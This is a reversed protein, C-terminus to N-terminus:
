TTSFPKRSRVLGKESLANRDATSASIPAMAAASRGTSRGLQAVQGNLRSGPKNGAPNLTHSKAPKDLLVRAPDTEAAPDPVLIVAPHLDVGDAIGFLKILEGAQEIAPGAHRIYPSNFRAFGSHLM